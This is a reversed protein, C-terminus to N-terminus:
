YREFEIGCEDEAEAQEAALWEDFSGFLYPDAM